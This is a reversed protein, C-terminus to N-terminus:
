MMKKTHDKEKQMPQIIPPTGFKRMNDESTKWVDYIPHLSRMKFM